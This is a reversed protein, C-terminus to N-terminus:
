KEKVKLLKQIIKQHIHADTKKWYTVKWKRMLSNYRNKVMHETRSGKFIKTISSWKKGQEEVTRM